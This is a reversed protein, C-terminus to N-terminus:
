YWKVENSKQLFYIMFAAVIALDFRLATLGILAIALLVFHLLNAM